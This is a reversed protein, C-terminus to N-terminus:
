KKFMFSFALNLGKSYIFKPVNTCKYMQVDLKKTLKKECKLGKPKPAKRKLDFDIYEGLKKSDSQCIM